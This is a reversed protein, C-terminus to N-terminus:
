ARRPPASAALRRSVIEGAQKIRVRGFIFADGMELYNLMRGFTKGSGVM